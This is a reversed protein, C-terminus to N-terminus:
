GSLPQSRVLTLDLPAPKPLDLTSPPPTPPTPQPSTRCQTQSKVSLDIPEDQVSIAPSLSTTTTTPPLVPPLIPKTAYCSSPFAVFPSIKSSLATPSFVKLSPEVSSSRFATMFQRDEIPSDPVGRNSSSDDPDASSAGSDSPSSLRPESKTHSISGGSGSGNLYKGPLFLHQQHNNYSQQPHHLPHHLQQQTLPAPPSLNATKISPNTKDQYTQRAQLQQHIHNLQELNSTMQQSNNGLASGHQQHQSQQEQLLCHIKFWNSRRGYRSGSKSMGVLLCKRLRCAKCATRNKKNIVCDGNNKCGAIASINNYTRGFFSKCGECTFAGFHFGAAPEGCVKCLQNM